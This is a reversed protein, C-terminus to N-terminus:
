RPLARFARRGPGPPARRDMRAGGVKAQELGRKHERAKIRAIAEQVEWPTPDELEGFDGSVKCLSARAFDHAEGSPGRTLLLLEEGLVVVARGGSRLLSLFSPLDEEGISTDCYLADYLRGDTCEPILVNSLSLAAGALAEAASAATAPSPGAASVLHSAAPVRERLRRMNARAAELRSSMCEIGHVAGGPGAMVAALATVYGSGCGVDLFSAGPALDLAELASAVVSPPPMTLTSGDPM